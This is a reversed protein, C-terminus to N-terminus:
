AWTSPPMRIPRPAFTPAMLTTSHSTGGPAVATPMGARIMSLTAEPHSPTPVSPEPGRRKWKGRYNRCAACISGAATRRTGGTPTYEFRGSRKMAAFVRTGSPGRRHGPERGRIAAPMLSPYRATQLYRIGDAGYSGRDLLVLRPKVGVSGARELLRRVVEKLPTGRAVAQLAVTSRQGELVVYATAYAHFHGTGDKAPSRDIEEQDRAPAGHYPIRTLDIVLRRRRRRRARPLRGAPAHDLQRRLEASDPLRAYLATRVTEEGPFGGLRVCAAHISTVEAAAASLVTRLTSATVERKSDRLPVYEQLFTATGRYVRWRNLTWPTPAHSAGSITEHGLATTRHSTAGM